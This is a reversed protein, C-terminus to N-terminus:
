PLKLNRFTPRRILSVFSGLASFYIEPLLNRIFHRFTTRGSVLMLVYKLMTGFCYFLSFRWGFSRTVFIQRSRWIAKARVKPVRGTIMSHQHYVRLAPNFVPMIGNRLGRMSLETDEYYLFFSEDFGGVMKIYGTPLIVGAGCWARRPGCGQKEVFSALYNWNLDGASFPSYIESGANQVLYDIPGLLDDIRAIVNLASGHNEEILHFVIELPTDKEPNVVVTDTSIILKKWPKSYNRIQGEKSYISFSEDPDHLNMGVVGVSFFKSFDVTQIKQKFCILPMIPTLTDEAGDKTAQLFISELDLLFTSSIQADPNLLMVWDTDMYTLAKSIGLNCAAGFGPNSPLQMYIDADSSYVRDESQPHNDVVIIRVEIKSLAQAKRVSSIAERLSEHALFTPIIVALRDNKV